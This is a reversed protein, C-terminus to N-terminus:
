RVPRVSMTAAGGTVRSWYDAWARGIAETRALLEPSPTRGNLVVAVMATRFQKQADEFAPVRPGNHAIVDRITIDLREATVRPRGASDRGAPQVDRLLFFDPVRDAPLFGMLYLELYSFGDSPVMSGRDLLTFTGDRNDQWHSGGM